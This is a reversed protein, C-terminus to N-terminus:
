GALRECNRGAYEFHRKPRVLEFQGADAIEAEHSPLFLRMEDTPMEYSTYRRIKEQVAEPTQKKREAAREAMVDVVNYKPESM